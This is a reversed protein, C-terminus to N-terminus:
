ILPHYLVSNDDLSNCSLICNDFNYVGDNYVEHGALLEKAEGYKVQKGSAVKKILENITM